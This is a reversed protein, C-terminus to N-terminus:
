GELLKYGNRVLIGVARDGDHRKVHVILGKSFVGRNYFHCRRVTVGDSELMKRVTKRERYQCDLKISEDLNFLEGIHSATMAMGRDHTGHRTAM